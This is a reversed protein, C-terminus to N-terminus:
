SHLCLLVKQFSECEAVHSVRPPPRALKLRQVCTCFGAARTSQLISQRELLTGQLSSETPVVSRRCM